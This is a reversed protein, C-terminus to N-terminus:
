AKPSRQAADDVAVQAARATRAQQASKHRRVLLAIGAEATLAASLTARALAASADAECRRDRASDVVKRARPLWAVFAEVTADAEEPRTSAEAERLIAARAAREERLAEVGAAMYKALNGRAVEVVKRRLQLAVQLSRNV